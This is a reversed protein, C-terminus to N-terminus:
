GGRRASRRAARRDHGVVARVGRTVGVVARGLLHRRGGTAADSTAASACAAPTCAAPTCAPPVVVPDTPVLPPAPTPVQVPAPTPTFPWMKQQQVPACANPGCASCGGQTQVNRGRAEAMTASLAITVVCLLMIFPKV